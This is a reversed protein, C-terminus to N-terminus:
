QKPETNSQAYLWDLRDLATQRRRVRLVLDRGVRLIGRLHYLRGLRQAQGQVRATRAQRIRAYHLFASAPDEPHMQMSQALAVSDEIALAGGQALFPLVPHAADGLLAVRGSSWHRLAPLSYLSWRRWGSARELLSKAEKCWRTFSERLAAGNAAGDWGQREAGGETVAVINLEKGGRVPYLVLHARPGLWLGVAPTDFPSPLESRPLTTRSAIAGAFRLEAEPAVFKRVRSWLGDAGILSSGEVADGATDHVGVHGPFAEAAEVEFGPRVEISGLGKCASLLVAHLDARHLTLYPAGYRQEAADGLPVTALRRGRLGDFLWLAEPRFALPEIEELVGLQRLLRTANPGLQIGAGTEDGFGSRELVTSDFGRRALAIASALGGIGGGAILVRRERKPM